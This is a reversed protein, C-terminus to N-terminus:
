VLVLPRRAFFLFSVVAKPPIDLLEERLRVRQPASSSLVFRRALTPHANEFDFAKRSSQGLGVVVSFVNSVVRPQRSPLLTATAAFPLPNYPQSTASFPGRSMSSYPHQHQHAQLASDSSAHHNSFLSPPPMTQAFRGYADRGSGGASAGASRLLLEAIHEDKHREREQRLARLNAARAAMEEDHRRRAETSLQALRRPTLDGDDGLSHGQASPSQALAGRLSAALIESRHIPSPSAHAGRGSAGPSGFRGGSAGLDKTGRM